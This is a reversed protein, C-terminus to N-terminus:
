LFMQRFLGHKRVAQKGHWDPDELLRKTHEAQSMLSIWKDLLLESQNVTEALEKIHTSSKGFNEIVQEIVHNISKIAEYEHRRQVNIHPPNSPDEIPPQTHDMTRYLLTARRDSPLLTSKRPANNSADERSQGNPENPNM